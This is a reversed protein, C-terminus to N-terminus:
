YEKSLDCLVVRAVRTEVSLNIKAIRVLTDEDDMKENEKVLVFTMASLGICLSSGCLGWRMTMSISGCGVIRYSTCGDATTDEETQSASM